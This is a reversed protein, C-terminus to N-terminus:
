QDASGGRFGLRRAGRGRAQAADRERGSILPKGAQHNQWAKYALGGILVLGGVKAADFALSRGTKTGGVLAGLGGLVAGATMPNNGILEKVKAIMDGSAQGGTLKRLVDDVKQGAGTASCNIRGAGEKVGQTAQGFINGLGGLGGPAAPRSPDAPQQPANQQGQLKGLVGGLLDGLGGGQQQAPAQPEAAM